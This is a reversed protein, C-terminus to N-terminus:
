MHRAHTLGSPTAAAAPVLFHPGDAGPEFFRWRESDTVDDLSDDPFLELRVGGDFTLRIRGSTTPKM